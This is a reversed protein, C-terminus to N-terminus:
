NLAEVQAYWFPVLTESLADAFDEIKLTDSVSWGASRSHPNECSSKIATPIQEVEIEKDARLTKQSVSDGNLSSDEDQEKIPSEFNTNKEVSCVGEDEKPWKELKPGLIRAKIGTYVEAAKNMVAQNAKYRRIKKLTAVLDTNKQLIHSTLQLSRLKELAGLCRNVDPNEVKLAFKIESHLKQLQEEVTPEKIVSKQDSTVDPKKKLKETRPPRGRPRDGWKKQNTKKGPESAQSKKLTKKVKKNSDSYSGSKGIEKKTNASSFTAKKYIEQESDSDSSLARKVPKSPRKESSISNSDSDAANGKDAKEKKKKDEEEREEERLRRLQEDQERRHREELERCREEDKKKWDSIRDPSSDSDSNSSTTSQSAKSSQGHPKSVPKRVLARSTKAAKKVPKESSSSSQQKHDTDTDSGSKSDSENMIQQDSDSNEEKSSSASEPEMESSTHKPPNPSKIEEEKESCADDSSTEAVPLVTLSNEEHAKEHSVDSDSSNIAPPTFRYSAQPDTQIEWLGENFGKRKNPKGYKDKYKEYLFLDKAGLFATEHTGYFFIAYKNPPPKVAGDRIDDIRAPWHPYGKMKAFVLDGPKFNVPM